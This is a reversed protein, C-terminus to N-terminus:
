RLVLFVKIPHDRTAVVFNHPHIFPFNEVLYHGQADAAVARPEASIDHIILTADSVPTGTSDKVTGKLKGTQAFVFAPSLAILLFLLIGKNM